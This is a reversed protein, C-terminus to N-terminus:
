LRTICNRLVESYNTLDKPMLTGIATLLIYISRLYIPLVYTYSFVLGDGDPQRAVVGNWGDSYYNQDNYVVRWKNDTGKMDTLDIVAALCTQIQQLRYENSVPPQQSIDDKLQSLVTAAGVIAQELNRLRDLIDEAM